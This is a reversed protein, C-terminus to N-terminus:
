HCILGLDKVAKIGGTTKTQKASISVGATGFLVAM